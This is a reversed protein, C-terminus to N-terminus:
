IELVVSFRCTENWEIWIVDRLAELRQKYLQPVARIRTTLAFGLLEKAPSFDHDPFLEIIQDTTYKGIQSLAETLVVASGSRIKFFYVIREIIVAVAGISLIIIPTLILWNAGILDKM